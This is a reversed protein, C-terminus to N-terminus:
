QATAAPTGALTTVPLAPGRAQALFASGSDEGTLARVENRSALYEGTVAARTTTSHFTTLPQYWTAWPNVGALQYASLDAAVEARTKTSHFTDNVVTPDDALANGAFAAFVLASLALKAQM